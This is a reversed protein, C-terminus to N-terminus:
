MVACSSREQGVKTLVIIKQQVHAGDTAVILHNPLDPGFASVMSAVRKGFDGKIEKEIEKPTLLCWMEKDLPAYLISFAGIDLGCLYNVIPEVSVEAGQNGQKPKITLQCNSQHSSACQSHLLLDCKACAKVSDDLIGCILCSGYHWFQPGVRENLYRAPIERESDDKEDLPDGSQLEQTSSQSRAKADSGVDEHLEATASQSRAEGNSGLDEHLEATASQSRAEGNSGVYADLEPTSSQSHAEGNSGVYADLEPTSSQSRAEGNSALHEDLEATASQSRTRADSVTTQTPKPTTSHSPARGDSALSELGVSQNFLTTTDAKLIVDSSPATNRSPMPIEIFVRERRLKMQVTASSSHDNVRSTVEVILTPIPDRNTTRGQKEAYQSAMSVMLTIWRGWRSGADAIPEEELRQSAGDVHLRVHRVERRCDSPITWDKSSTIISHLDGLHDGQGERAKMCPHKNGKSHDACFAFFHCIACQTVKTAECDLIGCCPQYTQGITLAPTTYTAM